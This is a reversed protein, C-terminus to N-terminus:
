VVSTVNMFAGQAGVMSGADYPWDVARSSCREMKDFGPSPGFLVATACRDARTRNGNLFVGSTRIKGPHKQIVHYM